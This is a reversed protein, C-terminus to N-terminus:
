CLQDGPPVRSAFDRRLRSCAERRLPAAEGSKAFLYREMKEPSALEIQNGGAWYAKSILLNCLSLFAPQFGRLKRPIGLQYGSFRPLEVSGIGATQSRPYGGVVMFPLGGIRFRHDPGFNGRFRDDPIRYGNYGGRQHWSRHDAQWNQARHEQWRLPALAKPSEPFAVTREMVPRFRRNRSNPTCRGHTCSSSAPFSASSGSSQDSTAHLQSLGAGRGLGYIAVETVPIRGEVKGDETKTRSRNVPPIDSGQLRIVVRLHVQPPQHWGQIKIVPLPRDPGGTIGIRASFESEVLITIRSM